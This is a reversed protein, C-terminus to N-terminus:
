ATIGFNHLATIIARVATVIADAQASTTYGYPTSTTSGTSAPATISGAQAVPTVGYVSILDSASQGFTCGNELNAPNIVFPGNTFLSM